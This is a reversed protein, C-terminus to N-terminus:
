NGIREIDDESLSIEESTAVQMIVQSIESVNPFDTKSKLYWMLREDIADIGSGTNQLSFNPCSNEISMKTRLPTYEAIM